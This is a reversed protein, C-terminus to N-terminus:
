YYTRRLLLFRRRGHLHHERWSSVWTTYSQSFFLLWTALINTALPPFHRCVYHMVKTYLTYVLWTWISSRYSSSHHLPPFVANSWSFILSPLPSFLKIIYWAHCVSRHVYVCYICAHTNQKGERERKRRWLEKSFLFGLGGQICLFHSPPILFILFPSSFIKGAIIVNVSEQRRKQKIKYLESM